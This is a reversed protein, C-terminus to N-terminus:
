SCLTSKGVVESVQGAEHMQSLVARELHDCWHVQLFLGAKPVHFLQEGMKTKLNQECQICGQEM